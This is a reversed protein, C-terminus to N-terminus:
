RGELRPIRGWVWCLFLREQYFHRDSRTPNRKIFVAEVQDDGGTSEPEPLADDPDISHNTLTGELGSEDETAVM